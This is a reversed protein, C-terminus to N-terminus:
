KDSIGKVWTVADDVSWRGKKNRFSELLRALLSEAASVIQIAGSEQYSAICDSLGVTELKLNQELM